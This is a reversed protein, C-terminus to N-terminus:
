AFLSQQMAESKVSVGARAKRSDIWQDVDRHSFSLCRGKGPRSYECDPGDGIKHVQKMYGTSYGCRIAAENINLRRILLGDICDIMRRDILDLCVDRVSAAIRERFVGQTDVAGIVQVKMVSDILCPMSAGNDGAAQIVRLISARMVPTPKSWSDLKNRVYGQSKCVGTITPCKKGTVLEFAVAIDEQMADYSVELCGSSALAISLGPIAKSFWSRSGNSMLSVIRPTNILFVAAVEVRHRQEHSRSDCGFKDRMFKVVFHSDVEIGACALRAMLQKPTPRSTWEKSWEELMSRAHTTGFAIAETKAIDISRNCPPGNLFRVALRPLLDDFDGGADRIRTKLYHVHQCVFRLNSMM